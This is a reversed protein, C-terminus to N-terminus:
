EIALLRLGGDTFLLNADNITEVLGVLGPQAQQFQGGTAIGLRARHDLKSKAIVVDAIAFDAVDCNDIIERRAQLIDRVAGLRTKRGAERGLRAVVARYYEAPFKAIREFCAFAADQLELAFHPLLSQPNPVPTAQRAWGIRGGGEGKWGGQGEARGRRGEAEGM